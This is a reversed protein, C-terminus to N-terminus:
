YIGITGRGAPVTYIFGTRPILKNIHQDVWQDIRAIKTRPVYVIDKPELFFPQTEEGALSAKLNLAHGYRQGGKHRIVVVNRVEAERLNFGGVEMIAELVTMKGPMQVIGPSMVQGGVFVRRDRFSRVIVTIEPAKLHPTFLKLWEDRLEAPTKGQVKIEGILQLAIKGDPRVTQTVNLEPTYLFRVEIVDGPVLAVRPPTVVETESTTPAVPFGPESQCGLLLTAGLLVGVTLIWLNKMMYDRYRKM